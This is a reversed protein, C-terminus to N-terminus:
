KTSHSTLPVRPPKSPLTMHRKVPTSKSSAEQNALASISGQNSQGDSAGDDDEDDDDDGFPNLSNDYDQLSSCLFCLM